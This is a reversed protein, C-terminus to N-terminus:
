DVSYDLAFTTGGRYTNALCKCPMIGTQGETTLKTNFTTNLSHSIQSAGAIVPTKRSSGGRYFQYFARVIKDNGAPRM